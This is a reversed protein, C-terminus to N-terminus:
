EGSARLERASKGLKVEWNYDMARRLLDLYQEFEDRDFYLTIGKSAVDVLWEDNQEDHYIAGAEGEAVLRITENVRKRATYEGARFGNVRM